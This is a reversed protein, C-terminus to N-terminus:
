RVKKEWSHRQMESGCECKPASNDPGYFNGPKRGPCHTIRSAKCVWAHVMLPEPRNYGAPAPTDSVVEEPEPTVADEDDDFPTPIVVREKKAKAFKRQSPEAVPASKVVTPAGDGGPIRYLGRGLKICTPGRRIWLPDVGTLAKYEALNAHTMTDGYLTRMEANAAAHKEATSQKIM